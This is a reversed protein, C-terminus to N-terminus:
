SNKSLEEKVIKSILGGDAKGKLKPMLAQMVKGKEQLTSVGLEQITEQVIKKVDEESMQQPLYSKLIELEKTEKDVLDQRNANKFQEISDKHQKTEKQIVTLIDDEEAEYGAGGKQIEHYSIASLLMRLVSTKIIDRALMAQKLADRLQQKTM